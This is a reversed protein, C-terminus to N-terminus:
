SGGGKKAARLMDATVTVLRKGQVGLKGAKVTAVKEVTEATIKLVDGNAPIVIQGIGCQQGVEAHAQQHLPEGHVPVLMRPRVMGYLEKLEEQAPHGSVHILADPSDHLTIVRAGLDRLKHQLQAITEENGPIDRSSFIVTDGSEVMVDPHSDDAMRSLAARQEGQCGTTIYLARERPVFGADEPEMPEPYDWYECDQAADLMRWLSRGIFALTRGSQQAAEAISRLRAVNSAFCTIIVRHKQRQVLEILAQKAEAESGSRGAVPANTSDGVVALVGEGGIEKLRKMDSVPGLLPQPDFKWDGTHLFKGTPTEVLVMVADPISHTVAIFEFTFPGLTRKDGPNMEIIRVRKHSDGLKLRLLSATFPTAYVPGMFQDWIYEIAGLHDEHGHTLVLGTLDDRREAIFTPDPMTTDIGPVGDGFSVGCDLMLWKGRYGYLNLNSGIEGSGGLPIFITSDNDFFSDM